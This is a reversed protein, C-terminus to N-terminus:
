NRKANKTILLAVGALSLIGFIELLWLGRAKPYYWHWSWTRGDPDESEEQGKIIDRLDQDIKWVFKGTFKGDKDVDVEWYPPFFWAIIILISAVVVIKKQTKNLKTTKWPNM